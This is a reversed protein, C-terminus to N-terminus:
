KLFFKESNFLITILQLMPVALENANNKDTDLVFLVTSLINKIENLTTNNMKSKKLHEIEALLLIYNEDCDM